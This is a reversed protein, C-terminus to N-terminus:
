RSAALRNEVSNLWGDVSGDVVFDGIRTIVGAILEPRLVKELVIKKGTARELESKLSTFFSEPLEKAHEITARILGEKTDCMLSLENAIGKIEPLRSREFIVRISDKALPSLALKTAVDSIIGLRIEETLTPNRLAARLEASSDYQEAFATIERNIQVLKGEAQALEFIARAYRESVTSNSM